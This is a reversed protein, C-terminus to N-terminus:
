RGFLRGVIPQGQWNKMWRARDKNARWRFWFRSRYFCVADLDLLGIGAEHILVNTAKLDGHEINHSVLTDLVRSIEDAVRQGAAVDLQHPKFYDSALTGPLYENVVYSEGPCFVARCTIM